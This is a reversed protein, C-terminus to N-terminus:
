YCDPWWCGTVDPNILVGGIKKGATEVVRVSIRLRQTHKNTVEKIKKQLISGPTALIFLPAYSPRYWM